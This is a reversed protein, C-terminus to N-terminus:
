RGRLLSSLKQLGTMMTPLRERMDDALDKVAKQFVETDANRDLAELQSLYWKIIADLDRQQQLEAEWAQLRERDQKQALLVGELFPRLRELLDKEQALHIRGTVVRDELFKKLKRTDRMMKLTQM